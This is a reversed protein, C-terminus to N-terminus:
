CSLASAAREHTQFQNGVRVLLEVAMPQAEKPLTRIHEYWICVCVHACINSLILDAGLENTALTQINEFKLPFVLGTPEYQFQEPLIKHIRNTNRSGYPTQSKKPDQLMRTGALGPGQSIHQSLPKQSLSDAQQERLILM